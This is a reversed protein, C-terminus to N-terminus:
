WKKGMAEEMRIWDAAATYPSRGPRREQSQEFAVVNGDQDIIAKGAAEDEWCGGNLWTAPHKTYRPPEAAREIAYRAAGAILVEPDTGSEVAKTFAKRAAEKAVRKPYSSWFRGFTEAIDTKEGRSDKKEGRSASRPHSDSDEAQIKAQRKAQKTTVAHTVESQGSKDGRLAPNTVESASQPSVTKDGRLPSLVKDGRVLVFRNTHHWGDRAVILWGTRELMAVMRIISRKSMRSKAALTKYPPNCQGSEVNLHLAIQLALIHAAHPLEAALVARMWDDRQKFTKPNAPAQATM